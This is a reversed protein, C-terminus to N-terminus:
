VFHYQMSFVLCNRLLLTIAELLLTVLLGINLLNTSEDADEM